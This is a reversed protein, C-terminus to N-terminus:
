THMMITSGSIINYELKLVDIEYFIVNGFHVLATIAFEERGVAIYMTGKDLIYTADM